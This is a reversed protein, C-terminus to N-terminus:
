LALKSSYDIHSSPRSAVAGEGIMLQTVVGNRLCFAKTKEPHVVVSPVTSPLAAVKAIAKHM